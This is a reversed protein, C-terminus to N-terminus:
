KKKKERKLVAAGVDSRVTNIFWLEGDSWSALCLLQHERSLRTIFTHCRPSYLIHLIRRAVKKCKPLTGSRRNEWNRVASSPHTSNGTHPHATLHTSHTFTVPCPHPHLDVNEWNRVATSYSLCTLPIPAFTHTQTAPGHDPLTYKTASNTRNSNNAQERTAVMTWRQWTQALTNWRQLVRGLVLIRLQPNLIKCRKPHARIM